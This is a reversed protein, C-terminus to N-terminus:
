VLYIHASIGQVEGGLAFKQTILMGIDDARDSLVFKPLADFRMEALM